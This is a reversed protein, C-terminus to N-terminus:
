EEIAERSHAVVTIVFGGSEGHTTEAVLMRDSQLQTAPAKKYKQRTIKFQKVIFM